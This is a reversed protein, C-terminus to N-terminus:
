DENPGDTQCCTNGRNSLQISAIQFYVPSGYDNRQGSGSSGQEDQNYVSHKDYQDPDGVPSRICLVRIYNQGIQLRVRKRRMIAQYGGVVVQSPVLLPTAIHYSDYFM